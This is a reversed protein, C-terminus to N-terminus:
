IYRKCTNQMKVWIIIFLYVIHMIFYVVLELYIFFIDMKDFYFNYDYYM